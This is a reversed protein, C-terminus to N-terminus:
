EEFLETKVKVAPSFEGAGMANLAAVKFTYEEAHFINHFTGTICDAPTIVQFCKREDDHDLKIKYGTIPGNQHFYPLEKWSLVVSSNCKAIAQLSPPYGRPGILFLVM